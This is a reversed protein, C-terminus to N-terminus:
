ARDEFYLENLGHKYGLCSSEESLDSLNELLYDLDEEQTPTCEFFILRDALDDLDDEVSSLNITVAFDILFAQWFGNECLELVINRAHLDGHVWGEQWFTNLVDRVDICIELWTAEDILGSLYAFAYEELTGGNNIKRVRISEPEGFVGESLDAEPAVGLGDLRQYVSFEHGVFREGGTLDTKTIWGTAPDFKLTSQTGEAAREAFSRLDLIANYAARRKENTVVPNTM